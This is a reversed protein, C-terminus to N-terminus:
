FGRTFSFAPPSRGRRSGPWCGPRAAAQIAAQRVAGVAVTLQDLTPAPVVLLGAYGIDGHGANIEADRHLTDRICRGPVRTVYRVLDVPHLDGGDAAGAIVAMLGPVMDMFACAPPTVVALV